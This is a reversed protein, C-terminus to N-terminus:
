LTDIGKALAFDRWGMLNGQETALSKNGAYVVYSNEPLNGSLRNWYSLGALYDGSPTEGSKIEVPMLGKETEIILDIEHGKHDRWFYLPPGEGRNLYGKMLDAIVLNEFISGRAFHVKVQVPSKIGLLYCLLGTDYFYLKPMKILRKNFNKHHSYLRFVVYGAELINIWNKATNVAIGCDAALSSLNLLQGARGACLKLFTNFTALNGVQSLQRVDREIYTHVYSPYFYGPEINKDYIRPYFGKFAVQEFGDPLLGADHLERMSFPLLKLVAARGALSQGIHQSLLFNQSGSLIFKIGNKEDVIGQLYSFLEPVRQAEDLVAGEPYNNLFGRPDSQAFFRFDPDELSVYPVDPFINKVLTTKGSQRPGTLFIVPFKDYLHLLM